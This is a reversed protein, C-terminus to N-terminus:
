KMRRLTLLLILELYRSAAQNLGPRLLRRYVNLMRESYVISSDDLDLLNALIDEIVLWFRRSRRSEFLSQAEFGMLIEAISPEIDCITDIFPSYTRLFKPTPLAFVALIHITLELRGHSIQWRLLLM